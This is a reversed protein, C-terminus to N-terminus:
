IREEDSVSDRRIYLPRGIVETHIHAIYLAVLGLCVLVIGVLFLVALGLSASGSFNLRLPDGMIYQEILVFTCAPAAILLIFMGIYGAMRLPLMSYATFSNIALSVLKRFTYSAEGHQRVAAAFSVYTRRFGLWDILGRTMRNRETLRNFENVVCRDLLRYDTAHPTVETHSIWRMIRYFWISGVRKLRSEKGDAKRLGVVVEGGQEWQEIFAPIKQPPHQLDADMIIVADGKSDHIGASVAAEKGFNRAFEILRLENYEAMAEKIVAASQDSSGDDIFVFEFNYATLKNVVKRLETLLIPVCEQENHVPVVITILKKRM